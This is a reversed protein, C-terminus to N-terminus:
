KTDPYYKEKQPDKMWFYLSICILIYIITNFLTHHDIIQASRKDWFLALLVFRIVNLIEIVLIGSLIFIVRARLPKPYAIAFATFFSIVGLGLCSYVLRISGHGAVLLEYNNDIATLGFLNLIGASANLLLQRLWQIYNLHNALFANYHNGPSTM